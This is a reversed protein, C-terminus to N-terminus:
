RRKKFQAIKNTDAILNHRTSAQSQDAFFPKSLDQCAVVGTQVCTLVRKRSTGCPHKGVIGSLAHVTDAVWAAFPTM